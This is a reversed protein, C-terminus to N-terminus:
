KPGPTPLYSHHTKMAAGTTHRYGKKTLPRRYINTMKTGSSVLLRPSPGALTFGGAALAVGCYLDFSIWFGWARGDSLNSIAGIGNLYRFIAVGLGLVVLISLIATGVPFTRKKLTMM